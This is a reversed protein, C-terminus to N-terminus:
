KNKEQENIKERIEMIMFGLKNEGPWNYPNSLDVTQALGCSWYADRFNCEVLISNNTSLLYERLKLNQKFKHKLGIFMIKDCIAKWDSDKYNRVRRGLSKYKEPSYKLNLIENAMEIDKFYFAKYFQFFHEVCSFYLLKDSIKIELKCPAFNSFVKPTIEYANKGGFFPILEPLNNSDYLKKCEEKNM